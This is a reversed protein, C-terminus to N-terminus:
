SYRKTMEGKYANFYSEIQEYPPVKSLNHGVCGISPASEIMKGAIEMLDEKTIRDIKECLDTPSERFGYTSYQRVLDECLVLRSELQMMMMSKLMNKARSLEEDSVPLVSLTCLQDILLRIMSPASDPACAGDIGILGVEDFVSIFAEASEVWYYRNLVERYLRTYMGKGPGGASFSSGGGLLQQL